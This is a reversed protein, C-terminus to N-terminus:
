DIYRDIEGERLQMCIREREKCALESIASYNSHLAEVLVIILSHLLEPILYIDKITEAVGVEDAEIAAGGAMAALEEEDVLKDGISGNGVMEMAMEGGAELEIPSKAETNGLFGSSSKGVEMGSFRWYDVSVDLGGVDEKIGIEM